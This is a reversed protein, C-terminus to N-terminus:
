YIFSHICCKHKNHSCLKSNYIIKKDFIKDIYIDYLIAISVCKDKKSRFFLYKCNKKSGIEFDTFKVSYEPHPYSKILQDVILPYFYNKINIVDSHSTNLPDQQFNYLSNIVITLFNFDYNNM